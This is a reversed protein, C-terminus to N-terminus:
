SEVVPPQRSPNCMSRNLWFWPASDVSAKRSDSASICASCFVRVLKLSGDASYDFASDISAKADQPRSKLRNFVVVRRARRMPGVKIGSRERTSIRGNRGLESSMERRITARTM